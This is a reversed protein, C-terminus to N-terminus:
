DGVVRLGTPKAPNKVRVRVSLVPTSYSSPNGGVGILRANLDYIGEPVGLLATQMPIVNEGVTAVQDISVTIHGDGGGVPTVPPVPMYHFEVRTTAADPTGDAHQGNWDFAFKGGSSAGVDIPASQAILFAFVLGPLTM